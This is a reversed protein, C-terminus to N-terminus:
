RCPGSCGPPAGGGGGGAPGVPPRSGQVASQAANIGAQKGTDAATEQAITQGIDGHKTVNFSNPDVHSSGPTISTLGLYDDVKITDVV